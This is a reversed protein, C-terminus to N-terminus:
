DQIELWQNLLEDLKNQDNILQSTISNYKQPNDLYLNVDELEKELHKISIELKEIYNPLTELLRQYKYSLKKNLPEKQATLPLPKSAKKAIPSTTFYQKYDEYGGTLDHIKGQAFVLTRTVLRELFDRDHSVVILTGSYDTLIDLLIELSDMDLDNTPEDLILLNGPNMLIKALLLRNAEGGSLIATKANLLKPNFMFQKLYGAVHMTKGHPLFVQDGGTPCLTQQLTHNPELKERHQDFYSIDLNGGYIIKGSEPTLQKTLLKIFTSKGSGNAGIIGIKEGNKVRFSFNDIIKTNKYSFTINDAEIIFKSKAINEALEARVRQTSSALKATQEQTIARLAKLDALRKQNRKRRATVGANLWENEQSLKKNLKRLAAEEQDIIITQWEDFFKFGKDSKRLIGRDLWWIKNTVNSLFTRDHSVCIIAGKYSKVFEELWEITAIDLHNTPEDLLLIEPELILAKALSARSLQGGSYTSLNDTGNIQLKELIIDIQYKDIEKTSDTQQLVFDYVTLHTKIPIDQRLYGTTVLPDQFLAGNDLEYDGSIVKMLSSKGCGNRGILCIKDGTYLYLELDSLIVKDAFSLNGDKIYYIPTM